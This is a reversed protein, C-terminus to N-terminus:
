KEKSVKENKNIKDKIVIKQNRHSNYEYSYLM